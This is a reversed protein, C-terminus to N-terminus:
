IVSASHPQHIIQTLINPADDPRQRLARGVGGAFMGLTAGHYAGELDGYMAYGIGGGALAGSGEWAVGRLGAQAGARLMARRSGHTIGLQAMERLGQRAATGFGGVVGGALGGAQFGTGLFDGGAAWEGGGGIIAGGASYFEGVPNLGGFLGGLGIGTTYDLGTAEDGLAAYTELGGHTAGVLVGAGYFLLLAVAIPIAEGSPDVFNVPNGACYEYLNTGDVMGAPDKQLWRGLTPHYVRNRVLYLGTTEDYYYGGFLHVFDGQGTPQGYPDYTVVRMEEEGITPVIGVINGNADSLAYDRQIMNDGEYKERCVLDDPGRIGWIYEYRYNSGNRPRVEEELLQWDPSYTYRRTDETSVKRVLRGLGDYTLRALDPGLFVPRNWADYRVGHDVLPAKPDPYRTLNGTQDYGPEAWKPERPFNKISQIRDGPAHKRTQHLESPGRTDWSLWNGSADLTWSQQTAGTNTRTFRNLKIHRFTFSSSRSTRWSVRSRSRINIGCVM